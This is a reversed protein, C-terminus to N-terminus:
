RAPRRATAPASPKSSRTTSPRTPDVVGDGLHRARHRVADAYLTRLAALPDRDNAASSRVRRARLDRLPLGPEEAADHLGRRRPRPGRARPRPTRVRRDRGREAPGRRDRHRARRAGKARRLSRRAARPFRRAGQRYGGRGIELGNEAALRRLAERVPMHSTGFEASLAPITIVQGPEFRGWMLAQRLQEYVGDQVTTRSSVKSLGIENMM